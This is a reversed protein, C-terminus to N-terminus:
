KKFRPWTAWDTAAVDCASPAYSDGLDMVLPGPLKFRLLGDGDRYVPVDWCDRILKKGKALWEQADTWNM